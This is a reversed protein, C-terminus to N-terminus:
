IKHGEIVWISGPFACPLNVGRSMLFQGSLLLEKDRLAIRGRSVQAANDPTILNIKYISNADLGTLMVPKPSSYVSQEMQVVFSVFKENDISVQIEGIQSKDSLDLRHFIAKHM